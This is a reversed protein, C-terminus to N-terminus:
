AREARGHNPHFGFKVEAAKRAAVADEISGYLGLYHKVGNCTIQARFKGADRFVGYHGTTNTRSLARNQTNERQTVDRLNSIFDRSCNGDIHDIVNPWYGYHYVWTLRSAKRPKGFVHICFRGHPDPHGAVLGVYKANWVAWKNKTDFESEPRPLWVLRGLERVYLFRSRIMAQTIENEDLM